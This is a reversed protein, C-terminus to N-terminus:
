RMSNLEQLVSDISRALVSGSRDAQYANALVEDPVDILEPASRLSGIHLQGDIHLLSLETPILSDFLCSGYQM